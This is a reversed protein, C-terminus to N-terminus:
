SQGWCCGLLGPGLETGNGCHGVRPLVTSCCCRQMRM